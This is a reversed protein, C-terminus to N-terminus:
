HNRDNATPMRGIAEPDRVRLSRCQDVFQALEPAPKMERTWGNDVRFTIRNKAKAFVEAFRPDDLMLGGGDTGYFIDRKWSKRDVTLVFTRGSWGYDGNLLAFIPYRDCTGAFFSGARDGFGYAVHNRYQDWGHHWGPDVSGQYHRKPSCALLGAFLGIGFTLKRFMGTGNSWPHM